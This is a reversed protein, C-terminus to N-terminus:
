ICLFLYTSTSSNRDRFAPLQCYASFYRTPTLESHPSGRVKHLMSASKKRMMAKFSDVRALAFMVSASQICEFSMTMPRPLQVLGTGSNKNPCRGLGEWSLGARAAARCQGASSCLHTM